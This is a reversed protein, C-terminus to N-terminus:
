HTGRVGNDDDISVVVRGLARTIGCQCQDRGSPHGHGGGGGEGNGGQRGRRWTGGAEVAVTVSPQGEEDIKMVAWSSLSLM